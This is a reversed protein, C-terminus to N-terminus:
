CVAQNTRAQPSRVKLKWAIQSSLTTAPATTNRFNPVQCYRGVIRFMRLQRSDMFASNRGRALAIQPLM